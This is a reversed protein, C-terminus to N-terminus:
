SATGGKEDKKSKGTAKKIVDKNFTIEFQGLYRPLINKDPMTTAAAATSATSAVGTNTSNSNSQIVTTGATNSQNSQGATTTSQSNTVTSTTSQATSATNTTGAATQGSAAAAANQGTTQSTTNSTEKTETATISSLSADEIWESEKLSELFYAAERTSDFQVSISVTGAETYAFSQIFGRDPLLSNLHKMVPITQLPYDSAWDVAAKLLSASTSAENTEASQEEKDAIKKTIEIQQDLANVDSKVTKIQWFYVGGILILVAAIASLYIINFKKPEKQPLLNIEILM